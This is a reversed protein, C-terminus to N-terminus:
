FNISETDSSLYLAPWICCSILHKLYLTIYMEVLLGRYLGSISELIALVVAVIRNKLKFYQIRSPMVYGHTVLLMSPLCTLDCKAICTSVGNYELSYIM